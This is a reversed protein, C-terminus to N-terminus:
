NLNIQNIYSQILDKQQKDDSLKEQLIKGAIDVSFDAILKKIDSIAAMREQEIAARANELVRNAELNAEHRADRIISDKMDRAEKVIKERELMAEKKSQESGAQMRIMEERAKGASRLAEEISNERDSLAKLIPRWAFKRLIMFLISFSIMMWFFLGFAPMVLGM